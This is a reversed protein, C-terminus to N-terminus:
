DFAGGRGFRPNRFEGVDPLPRGVDGSGDGVIEGTGDQTTPDDDADAAATATTAEEGTMETGQCSALVASLCLVMVSYRWIM